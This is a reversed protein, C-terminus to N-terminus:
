IISLPLFEGSSPFACLGFNKTDFIKTDFFNNSQLILQISILYHGRSGKQAPMKGVGTGEGERRSKGKMVRKIREKKREKKEM